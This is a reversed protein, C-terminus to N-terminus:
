GRQIASLLVFTVTFTSGQGMISSVTINGGHQEVIQKVIHLGLGTGLIGRNIGSPTRYFPDFILPLENAAIGYGTDSITLVAADGQEILSVTIQGDEPTYKIANDLLNSIAERLLSPEGMIISPADPLSVRLQQRFLAAGPAKKEVAARIVTNVDLARFTADKGGKDVRQLILLDEIIRMADSSADVVAQLTERRREPHMEDDRLIMQTLSRIAGIPNRLDHAAIDILTSKMRELGRVREYLDRMEDVQNRMTQHIRANDIALAVRDMLLELFQFASETFRTPEWTELNLIGILEGRWMLPLSMQARTEPIFAIYDPDNAVDHVLVAERTQIARGVIGQTTRLPFLGIRYHKGTCNAIRLLDPPEFLAIAADHARTARLAADVALALVSDLDLTEVIELEIQRLLRTWNIGVHDEAARASAGGGGDDGVPSTGSSM